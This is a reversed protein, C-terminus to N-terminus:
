RKCPSSTDIALADYGDSSAAAAAPMRKQLEMASDLGLPHLSPLLLRPHPPSPSSSVPPVLFTTAVRIERSLSVCVDSFLRPVPAFTRLSHPLFLPSSLVRRPLPLPQASSHRTKYRRSQKILAVVRILATVLGSPTPQGGAQVVTRARIMWKPPHDVGQALPPRKIPIYSFAPSARVRHFNIVALDSTRRPGRRAGGGRADNFNCPERRSTDSM